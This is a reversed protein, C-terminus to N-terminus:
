DPRTRYCQPLIVCFDHMHSGQTLHQTISNTAYNFKKATFICFHNYLGFKKIIILMLSPKGM